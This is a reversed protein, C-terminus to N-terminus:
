GRLRVGGKGGEGNVGAAKIHLAIFENVSDLLPQLSKKPHVRVFREKIPEHLCLYGLLISLYGLAVNLQTKEMSDADAMKLHNDAFVGILGELGGEGALTEGAPPYYVCFNIMVGLM